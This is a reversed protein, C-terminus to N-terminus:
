ATRGLSVKSLAKYILPITVTQLPIMIMVQPLRQIIIASFNSGTMTMWWSNLLLSCVGQSLLVGIFAIIYMYVISKIKSANKVFNRTFMYGILGFILGRIIETVTYPPFYSGLPFVFSGVIDAVGGLIMTQGIGLQTACIIMPIFTLSIRTTDTHISLVRSFIVEMAILLALFVMDQILMRKMTAKGIMVLAPILLVVASLTIVTTVVDNKLWNTNFKILFISGVLLISYILSVVLLKLNISNKTKEM